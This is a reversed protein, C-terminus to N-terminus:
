PPGDMCSAWGHDPGMQESHVHPAKWALLGDMALADIAAWRWIMGVAWTPGDM